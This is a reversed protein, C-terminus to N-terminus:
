VGQRGALFDDTYEGLSVKVAIGDATGCDLQESGASPGMAEVREAFGIALDPPVRWAFSGTGTQRVGDPGAATTLLLDTGTTRCFTLDRFAM